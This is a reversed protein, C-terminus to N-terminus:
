AQEGKLADIAALADSVNVAGVYRSADDPNFRVDVLLVPPGAVADRAAKVGAAFSEAVALSQAVQEEERVRAETAREIEAASLSWATDYGVRFGEKRGGSDGEILGKAYGMKYGDNYHGQAREGYFDQLEAAKDAAGREYQERVYDVVLMSNIRQREEEMAAAVAAVHDAYAVCPGNTDPVHHPWPRGYEDEMVDVRWRPVESVPSVAWLLM